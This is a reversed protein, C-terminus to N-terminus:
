NLTVEFILHCKKGSLYFRETEHNYAIGNLCDQESSKKKHEQFKRETNAVSSFDWRAEIVGTKPNIKVVDDEYWINAYISGDVFELENIKDREKGEEDTVTLINLIEMTDGDVEFIKSTGDSIYLRYNGKQSVNSRDETIGWGEKIRDDM